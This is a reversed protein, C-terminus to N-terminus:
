VDKRYTPLSSRLSASVHLISRLLHWGRGLALRGGHVPVDLSVGVFSARSAPDEPVVARLANDLDVRV